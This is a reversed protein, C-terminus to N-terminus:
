AIHALLQWIAGFICEEGVNTHCLTSQDRSSTAYLQEDQPCLCSWGDFRPCVGKPELHFFPDM